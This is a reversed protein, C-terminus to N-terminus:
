SPLFGLLNFDSPRARSAQDWTPIVDRVTALDDGFHNMFIEGFVARYDTRRRVYRDEKSFLDGNRWTASDCNYVGGRVGGGAAMVVCAYAHDTGASGNEKSTRGFETMTVIILDDWMSQLDRYLARFGSAVQYLLDNHASRQNSHTDWGGKNVGVIQVPTRKMLMAANRLREGFDSDPYAAGNEPVYAGQQVAGQVINIADTLKLGTNYVLERYPQDPLDRPGGVLGLLGKGNAGLSTTPLAGTFKNVRSRGGSFNFRRPDSITPIPLPGKLAVLQSDAIAVAPLRNEAPDLTEIVKRYMFGVENAANGPTANEWYQQSDFHSQSQGSYGIRQLLALNGPGDYGTLAQSNYIEMMPELRPHLQAFGNGLDIAEEEPIYLTPRTSTNYLNDGRPIVTNVGDNGGRQFIFIMRKRSEPVGGLIRRQIFPPSYLNLGLTLSTVGSAKLFNRRTLIM